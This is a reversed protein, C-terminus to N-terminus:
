FKMVLGLGSRTAGFRLSINREERPYENFSAATKRGYVGEFIACPLEGLVGIAIGLYLLENGGDTNDSLNLALSATVATIALGAMMFKGAKLSRHQKYLQYAEHGALM